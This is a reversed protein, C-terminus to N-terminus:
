CILPQSGFGNAKGNKYAWKYAKTKLILINPIDINILYNFYKLM